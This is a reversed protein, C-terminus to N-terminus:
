QMESVGSSLEIAHDLSEEDEVLEVDRLLNYCNEEELNEAALWGLIDKKASSFYEPITTSLNSSTQLVVVSRILLALMLVTGVKKLVLVV